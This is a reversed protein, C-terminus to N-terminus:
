VAVSAALRVALADCVIVTMSLVRGAIEQGASIITFAGAPVHEAVTLKVTKALSLQETGVTTVLWADPETKGTPMVVTFAVAVSAAPLERLQLKVTVTLSTPAGTIVVLPWVM